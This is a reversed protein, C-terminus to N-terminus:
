IGFSYNILTNECLNNIIIATSCQHYISMFFNSPVFYFNLNVVWTTAVTVMFIYTDKGPFLDKQKQKSSEKMIHMM